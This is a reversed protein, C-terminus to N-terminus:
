KSHRHTRDRRKTGPRSTRENALEFFDRIVLRLRKAVSLAKKMDRKTAGFGPYRVRVSYQTLWILYEVHDQLIPLSTKCFHMLAELDHIKEFEVNNEVLVAKLYKEICQQCHYCVIDYVADDAESERVAVKFDGEAKEIWESAIKKM